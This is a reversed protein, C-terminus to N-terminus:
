DDITGVLAPRRGLVLWLWGGIMAAGGIPTIAGFWRPAGIAMAYLSLAFIAAGALLVWSVRPDLRSITIAAVAHPLQYSAGTRLWEKAQDGAGHAAFAGAAIALAASVAAVRIIAGSKM